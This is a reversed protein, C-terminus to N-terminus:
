KILSRIQKNEAKLKELEKQQEIIYLTLEEIKQLLQIQLEGIKAGESQMQAASPIEPLHKNTKVFKEVDSLPRLKYEDDFVFDAGSTNVVIENARIKGNVDLKYTTNTQTTKGILLNNEIIISKAYATNTIVDSPSYVELESIGSGPFPSAWSLLTFKVKSCLIAQFSYHKVTPGAPLTIADNIVTIWSAGNYVEVKYAPAGTWLRLIIANISYNSGLDITLESNLVSSAWSTSTNGDNSNTPLYSSNQSNTAVASKGLALNQANSDTLYLIAILAFIPTTLMLFKNKM